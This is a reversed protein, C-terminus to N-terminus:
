PSTITHLINTGNKKSHTHLLPKWASSLILGDERNMNNPHMEIEIAERILRDSYGTKASLLKTDQLRIIHDYNLSHGAVASKEPQALRIHRGHEKIRLDISRGSQGIYVTSIGLLFYVINLDRRFDSILFQLINDCTVNRGAADIGELQDLVVKEGLNVERGANPKKGIYTEMNYVCILKSDSLIWFKIGYCGPKSPIYQKFPCRGRFTVLEEDVTQMSGPVNGDRLTNVWLEFCEWIPELKDDSRHQRRYEMDDFRVVRLVYQFCQRSVIKNFIPRGNELSWFQCIDENKWKYIGILVMLGIVKYLEEVTVDNWKDKYV